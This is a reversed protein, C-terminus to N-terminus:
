LAPRVSRWSRSPRCPLIKHYIFSMFVIRRV